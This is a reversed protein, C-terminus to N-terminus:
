SPMLASSVLESNIFDYKFCGNIVKLIIEAICKSANLNHILPIFNMLFFNVAPENTKINYEQLMSFIKKSWLANHDIAKKTWESDKIAEVGAALVARNVNFPPKIQYMNDIIEKSDSILNAGLNNFISDEIGLHTAYNKQLNVKLGLTLYKKVIDPTLAIRKEVEQNELISCINM